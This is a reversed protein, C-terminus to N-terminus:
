WGQVTCTDSFDQLHERSQFVNMVSVFLLITVVEPDDGGRFRRWRQITMVEPDDGGRSRWWKQITVVEPDDGGRPRWWRQLRKILRVLVPKERDKLTWYSKNIWLLQGVYYIPFVITFTQECTVTANGVRELKVHQSHHGLGLSYKQTQPQKEM